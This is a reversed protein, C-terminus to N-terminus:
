SNRGGDVVRLAPEGPRNANAVITEHTHAPLAPAQLTRLTEPGIMRLTTLTIPEAEMLGIWSPNTVPTLCGLIRAHTKGEHRLPLLLLELDLPAFGRPAARAGAVVPTPEDLVARAISRLCERDAPRFLDVFRAGKVERAFLASVRGGAVRIPLNLDPDVQLILTDILLSPIAAPDIDAREPALREGRLGNWYRLMERTATQKMKAGGVAILAM